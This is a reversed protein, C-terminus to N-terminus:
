RESREDSPTAADWGLARAGVFDGGARLLGQGALLDPEARVLDGGALLGGWPLGALRGRLEAHGVPAVETFSLLSRWLRRAAAPPVFVLYADDAPSQPRAVMCGIADLTVQRVQGPAPLESPDRVYDSLVRAAGPGLLGLCVLMDAAGDLRVGVLEPDREAVSGLLFGLWGSLVPGRPSPDLLVVEDDGSRLALPVSVLAGDGALVAEFACEGVSLRRGALAASALSAAGTGSLLLYTAGTLDALLVDAGEASENAYREVFDFGTEGGDAFRAGLLEHEVRLVGDRRVSM